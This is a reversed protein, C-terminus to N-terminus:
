QPPPSIFDTKNMLADYYMKLANFCMKMQQLFPWVKNIHFVETVYVCWKFNLLVNELYLWVTLWFVLDNVRVGVEKKFSVQGKINQGWSWYPWIVRPQESARKLSWLSNLTLHVQIIDYMDTVCADWFTGDRMKYIKPRQITDIVRPFRSKQLFAGQQQWCKFASIM